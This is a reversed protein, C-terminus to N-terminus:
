KQVCSVVNPLSHWQRDLSGSAAEMAHEVNKERIAHGLLKHPNPPGLIVLGLPILQPGNVSAQWLRLCAWPLWCGGKGVVREAGARAMTGYHSPWAIRCPAM